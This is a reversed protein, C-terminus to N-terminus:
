LLREWVTCGTLPCDGDTECLTSQYVHDTALGHVTEPAEYHAFRSLQQLGLPSEFSSSIVTQLAHQRAVRLWQQTQQWGLMTPKIVLTSLGRPPTNMIEPQTILREDLAFPLHTVTSWHEYSLAPLLPEEIYEVADPRDLQSLFFSTQELSWSQNADLRIHQKPLLGAMWNNVRQVDDEVAGLGVKIKLVDAESGLRGDGVTLLANSSVPHTQEHDLLMLGIGTSLAPPVDEQELLERLSVARHAHLFDISDQLTDRSWDPLPAVEAWRVRGAHLTKLVIFERATLQGRKLQLPSVLPLAARWAAWSM